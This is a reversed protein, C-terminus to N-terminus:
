GQRAIEERLADIAEKAEKLGVQHQARYQKIAEITRGARVLAELSEPQQRTSNPKPLTRGEDEAEIADKAEKLGVGHQERYQKIREIKSPPRPERKAGSRVSSPYGTQNSRSLLRQLAVLFVVGVIAALAVHELGLGGALIVHMSLARWEESARWLARKLRDARRGSFASRGLTQAPGRM